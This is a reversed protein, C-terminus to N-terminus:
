NITSFERNKNVILGNIKVYSPVLPHQRIMEISKQVIEAVDQEGKEIWEKLTGDMFEPMCHEFLYDMTRLKEKMQESESDLLSKLDPSVNRKGETGVVVVEQVDEQYIAMIISRMIDGYPNSIVSGYSQLILMNELEINMEQQLFPEIRPEIDTLFLVKKNNKNIDM